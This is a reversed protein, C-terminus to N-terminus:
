RVAIVDARQSGCFHTVEDTTRETMVADDLLDTCTTHPHHIPRMVLLEIPIYRDLHDM